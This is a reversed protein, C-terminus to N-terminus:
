HLKNALSRKRISIRCKLDTLSYKLNYKWYSIYLGRLLIKANFLDTERKKCDALSM